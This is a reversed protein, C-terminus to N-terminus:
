RSKKKKKEKNTKFSFTLPLTFVVRVKKGNQIGPTWGNLLGALRIAENDLDARVGKIVKIDKVNGLTDVTFQTIVRGEIGDKLASEPYKLSDKIIKRLREDGGAFKPSIEKFVFIASTDSNSTQSSQGYSFIILLLCFIILISKKM